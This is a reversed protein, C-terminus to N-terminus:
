DGGATILAAAIIGMAAVPLTWYKVAGWLGRKVGAAQQTKANADKLVLIEADKALLIRDQAQIIENLAQVQRDQITLLEQVESRPIDQYYPELISTSTLSTWCDEPGCTGLTIDQAVLPLYFLFAILLSASKEM